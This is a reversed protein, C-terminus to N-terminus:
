PKLGDASLGEISFVPLDVLPTAAGRAALQLRTLKVAGETLALRRSSEGLDVAYHAGLDLLGDLVDANIRDAYYPAYKKLPIRGISFEGESRVPDVSVTGKWAFTEGAETVASFEYPAKPDGATLFNTLKFTLPGVDTAFPQARSADAFAFAASNVSLVDIRVPRPKSPAPEPVAPKEAPPPILDAFNFAGDKAIAVRQSFGDLTIEQFRWEGTFLSFSDFNVHLRKWGTFPGGDRDKIELGEITISLVLPNLRIKEIAVDRHLAASLHKVAQAKIIPPLGFFGFLLLGAVVGGAVLWRRRRRQRVRKEQAVISAASQASM